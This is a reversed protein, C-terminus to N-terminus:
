VPFALKLRSRDSGWRHTKRADLSMDKIQLRSPNIGGKSVKDRVTEYHAHDVSIYTIYFATGHSDM